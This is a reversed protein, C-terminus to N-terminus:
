IVRYPWHQSSCTTNTSTNPHSRSSSSHRDYLNNHSVHNNSNSSSRNNCFCCTNNMRCTTATTTSHACHALSPGCISHVGTRSTEEQALTPWVRQVAHTSRSPGHAVRAHQYHPLRPVCEGATSTTEPLLPQPNTQLVVRALYLAEEEKEAQAHQEAQKQEEEEHQEREERRRAPTCRRVSDCRLPFRARALYGFFCCYFLHVLPRRQETHHARALFVRHCSSGHQETSGPHALVFV